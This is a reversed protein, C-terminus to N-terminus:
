THTGCQLPIDSSQWQESALRIEFCRHYHGIGEKIAVLRGCLTWLETRLPEDAAAQRRLFSLHAHTRAHTRAHLVLTPM